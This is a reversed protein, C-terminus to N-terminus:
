KAKEKETSPFLKHIISDFEAIIENIREEKRARYKKEEARREEERVENIHNSIEGQMQSMIPSTLYNVMVTIFGANPFLENPHMIGNESRFFFRDIIGYRKIHKSRRVSSYSIVIHLKHTKLHYLADTAMRSIEKQISYVHSINAKSICFDCARHKRIPLCPWVNISGMDSIRSAIEQIRNIFSKLDEITACELNPAPHFHFDGQLDVVFIGPNLVETFPYLLNLHVSNVRFKSKNQYRSLRTQLAGALSELSYNENAIICLNILRGTYLKQYIGLFAQQIRSDGALLSGAFTGLVVVIVVEVVM